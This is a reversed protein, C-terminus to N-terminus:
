SAEYYDRLAALVSKINERAEDTDYIMLFCLNIFKMPDLVVALSMLLNCDRWHKHFKEKMVSAMERIYENRDM